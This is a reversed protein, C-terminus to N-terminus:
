YIKISLKKEIDPILRDTDDVYDEKSIGARRILEELIDDDLETEERFVEAMYENSAEEVQSFVDDRSEFSYNECWKERAIQDLKADLILNDGFIDHMATGKIAKYIM